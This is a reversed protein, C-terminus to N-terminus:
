AFVTIAKPEKIRAAVTEMIRFPHNLDDQGLYAVSLDMGVAIDLYQSEACLLAAKGSGLSGM